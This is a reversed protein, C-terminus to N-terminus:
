SAGANRIQDWFSKAIYGRVEVSPRLEVYHAFLHLYLERQGPPPLDYLKRLLAAEMEPTALIVPALPTADHVQTWWELRQFNRFYWPLPWLNRRSYVQVQLNHGDPNAKALRELKDRIEFVDWGTHAYVYPNRPDACYIFNGVFSQYSLHLAGAVLILGVLWRARTQPFCSLLRIAGVGALLIMGHLFGLLCWPTKYPIVTYALTLIVTYLLLVRLLFIKNASANWNRFICWGGVMALIVIFAESWFPGPSEKFFVLLGLYYHWPHTHLPDHVARYFYAFYSALFDVMGAPHKLFSTFFFVVIGLAALLSVLGNRFLVSARWPVASLRCPSRGVIEDPPIAQSRGGLLLTALVLAASLSGISLLATEKTALMLGGSIGGTIAWVLRPRSFHLFLCAIVGSAFFTLLMEHIYYRSYYTMAPSIATLAACSAAEPFTFADGFLFPVLVLFLGLLAPVVRLVIENLDRYNHIGALWASPLTLYNLAPGHYHLPDYRYEGTELLAGFKDAQIAEDAHMPRLDLRPLRLGGALLIVAFVLGM